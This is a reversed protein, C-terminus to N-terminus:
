PRWKTVAHVIVLMGKDYVFLSLHSLFLAKSTYAIPYGDQMLVAGIGARSVDSETVFLKNFDPLTLVPATTMAYKLSIFAQTAEETWKFADKKLLSILSASIKGYNNLLLLFFNVLSEQGQMILKVKYYKSDCTLIREDVVKVEFKDCCEIRYTLRTAVKSDMFSNTSSADILVTVSQHKLLREIKMIQPNSYGALAHITHTISEVTEDNNTGEYDSDVAKIEPEEEISEIM